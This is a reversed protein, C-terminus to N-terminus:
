GWDVPVRRGDVMVYGNKRGFEVLDILLQVDQECYKIVKERQGARWWKVADLGSGSKASSLTESALTALSVRHGLRAELCALLDLSRPQLKKVPSYGGLVELDFRNGNYTIIRSYKGLEGVLSEVDKEFWQRFGHQKDWTVAVALGFQSISNWGGPVEDSLRLTEVDLYIEDAPM